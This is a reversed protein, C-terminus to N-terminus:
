GNHPALRQLLPSGGHCEVTRDLDGGGDEGGIEGIEAGFAFGDLRLARLSRYLREVHEELRFIRGKFTRTLDFAGDGMM